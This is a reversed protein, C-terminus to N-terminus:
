RVGQRYNRGDPDRHLVGADVLYRRVAVPDDALASLRRTLEKEDLVEADQMARDALWAFVQQRDRQTRPLVSLRGGTLFREPGTVRQAPAAQLLATFPDAASVVGDHVLVLGADVLAALRRRGASDLADARVPDSREGVVVRAYLLRREPDSLTAAVRRWHLADAM